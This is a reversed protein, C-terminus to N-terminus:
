SLYGQGMLGKLIFEGTTTFGRKDEEIEGRKEGDNSDAKLAPNRRETCREESQADDSSPRGDQEQPTKKSRIILMFLLDVITGQRKGKDSGQYKRRCNAEELTETKM